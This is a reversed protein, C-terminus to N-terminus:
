RATSAMLLMGVCYDTLQKRNVRLTGDLWRIFLNTLAGILATSTLRAEVRSVAPDLQRRILEAFAPMAEAGRAGLRPETLPEILLVRGKRPDDALLAVFAEVAARAVRDPATAQAVASALVTRAEDAVADYVAVLLEDRDAFNEYFYRDTLKAHRCVSRVTVAASGQTGLLDFAVDLLRVRREDRRATLTTGAWSRTVAGGQRNVVGTRLRVNLVATM